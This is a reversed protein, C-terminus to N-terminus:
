GSLANEDIKLQMNIVGRATLLNSVSPSYKELYFTLEKQFEQVKAATEREQKYRDLDHGQTPAYLWTNQGLALDIRAKFVPHKSQKLTATGDVYVYRGNGDVIPM